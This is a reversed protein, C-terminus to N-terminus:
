AKLKYYETQYDDTSVQTSTEDRQASVTFKIDYYGDSDVDWHVDGFDYIEMKMILSRNPSLRNTTHEIAWGNEEMDKNYQEKDVGYFAPMGIFEYTGDKKAGYFGCALMLINESNNTVTFTYNGDYRIKLGDAMIYSGVEFMNDDSSLEKETTAKLHDDSQESAASGTQGNVGVPAKSTNEGGSSILIIGLIFILATVVFATLCSKDKKESNEPRSYTATQQIPPIQNNSQLDTKLPIGCYQCFQSQDSIEKGCQHCYM